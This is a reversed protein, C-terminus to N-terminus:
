LDVVSNLSGLSNPTWRQCNPDIQWEGDVVFKYEIQGADVYVHRRFQGPHGKDTLRFSDAEWDNFNGAVFVQSGPPAEIQFRIRRRKQQRKSSKPARPRESTQDLKM